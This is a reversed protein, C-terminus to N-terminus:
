RIKKFSDYHDATYYASGDSGTVLREPGRNVGPRLPNVDWERYRVRRGSGDSAPLRREFNGFHRGGEYGDPARDHEDVHQLVKLAKDPVGAPPAPRSPPAVPPAAPRTAFTSVRAPFLEQLFQRIAASSRSEVDADFSKSKRDTFDGGVGGYRIVDWDARAARMESEFATLQNLTSKQDESGTLVLVRSAIKGAGSGPSLDAHVAAVGLVDADSRALDLVASGGAGYGIAAIRHRAVQPQSALAQVAAAAQKLGAPRDGASAAVALTVYGAESWQAARARLDERGTLVLVGPGPGQAAAPVALVAEGGAVTMSRLNPEPRPQACAMVGFLLGLLALPRSM